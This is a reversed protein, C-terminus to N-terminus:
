PKKAPAAHALEARRARAHPAWPGRGGPGRLFTQWLAAAASLDAGELLRARAAVWEDGGRKAEDLWGLAGAR